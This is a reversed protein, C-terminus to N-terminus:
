RSAGTRNPRSRRTCGGWGGAGLVGLITYEGIRAPVAEPDRALDAALVDAGAGTRLAGGDAADSALLDATLRAVDDPAEALRASREAEPLDVVADFLRLAAAYREPTM